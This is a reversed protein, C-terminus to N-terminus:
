ITKIQHKGSNNDNNDFSIQSVNDNIQEKKITDKKLLLVHFIDHITLKKVFTLKYVPKKVLHLVQFLEFFM